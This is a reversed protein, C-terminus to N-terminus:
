ARPGATTTMTAERARARLRSVQEEPWQLLREIERTMAEVIVVGERPLESQLAAQVRTRYGQPGWENNVHAKWVHWGPDLLLEELVELLNKQDAPSAM